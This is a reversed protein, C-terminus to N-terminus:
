NKIFRLTKIKFKNKSLQIFYMGQSLTSVDISLDQKTAITKDKIIQGLSNIVTYNDPAELENETVITIFDTTPNPYLYTINIDNEPIALTGIIFNTISQDKFNESTAIIENNATTLTFSGNGYDCCFGDSESDVIKFTYCSNNALNFTTKIPAPTTSTDTYPGGKYVIDGNSNTLNWSTESGFRDLQLDLTVTSSAYSKTINFNVADTNNKLNEDTVLNVQSIRANFIHKGETTSLSGLTVQQSQNSALNGTWTFNRSNVSDIDYAIIVNTLAVSGKNTLTITPTFSKSCANINLNAVNIAADNNYTRGITLANSNKLVARRISNNMVTIMRMKQDATFINMCADDTYDMYNRFMDVGPSLPCSDIIKTPCGENAKRANPTDLCFDDVDCGDLDNDPDGWIHRLGLWHGVEHTTTRGKDYDNSYSGAPYYTSSGFFKYGIVVGDTSAIGSDSEIGALGSASPFQAYGLTTQDSLKVVWINFYNNPNWQTLPKVVEDIQTTSWSEQLLNVRNIGNSLVGAPDRKALAFEIEVDAGVTNTNFGPTNIRRRFDENLVRIQSLVQEDNINEDTGIIDGNHIVHVVVPITIVANTKLVKSAGKNMKRELVKPAIWKEFANISLRNLDKSKLYEEYQTTACRIVSGTKITEKKGFLIVQQTKNVQAFVTTFLSSLSFLLVFTIKKM